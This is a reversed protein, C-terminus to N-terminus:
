FFIRIDANISVEKETLIAMQNNQVQYFYITNNPSYQSIPEVEQWSTGNVLKILVSIPTNSPIHSYINPVIISCGGIPCSWSLNLFNAQNTYSSLSIAKVEVTDRDAVGFNDSVLLEFKYEGAVLNAVRTILSQPSVITCAPGSIRTWTTSLINGMDPDVALGKLRMENSLLLISFDVGANAEPPRNPTPPDVPVTGDLGDVPMEKKCGANVFSLLTAAFCLLFYIRKM